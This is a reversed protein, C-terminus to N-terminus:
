NQFFKHTFSTKIIIFPKASSSTKFCLYLSSPFPRNCYVFKSYEFPIVSEVSDLRNVFLEIKSQLFFSFLTNVLNCIKSYRYIILLETIVIHITSTHSCTCNLVHIVDRLVISHQTSRHNTLQPAATDATTLVAPRTATVAPSLLIQHCALAATTRKCWIYVCYMLSRYMCM